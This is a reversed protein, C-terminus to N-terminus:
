NRGGMSTLAEQDATLEIPKGDNILEGRRTDAPKTEATDVLADFRAEIYDDSKDAVDIDRALLAAKRIAAPTDGTVDSGAVQKADALLRADADAKAAAIAPHTALAEVATDREGEAKDARAKEEDRETTLLAVADTHATREKDLAKVLNDDTAEAEYDLGDVRIKIKMGKTEKHRPEGDSDDDFRVHGEADLIRVTPGGRAEGAGLLAIHNGLINTQRADYRQGDPTTGPTEDLSATYGVSLETLQRTRVLEIANADHLWLPGHTHVGDNAKAIYDGSNGVVVGDTVLQRWNDPTVAGGVNEPHRITAPMARMSQLSADAFVEEPARYERTQGGMGDGYVQIGTRSFHGDVRLRAGIM